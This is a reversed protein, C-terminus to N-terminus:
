GSSQRRNGEAVGNVKQRRRVGGPGGPQDLQHVWPLSGRINLHSPKDGEAGVFKGHFVSTLMFILRIEAVAAAMSM